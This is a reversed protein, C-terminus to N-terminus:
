REAVGREAPRRAAGQGDRAWPPKGSPLVLTTLSLQAGSLTGFRSLDSSSLGDATQAILVFGDAFVGEELQEKLAVTLDFTAVGSGGRFSVDCFGALDENYPTEFSPTGRAETVPSVRLEIDRETPSGTFPLRLVARQVLTSESFPIEGLRFFIRTSGEGDQVATVDQVAVTRGDSWAATAVLVAAWALVMAHAKM